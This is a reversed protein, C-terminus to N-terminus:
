KLVKILSTAVNASDQQVHSSDVIQITHRIETGTKSAELVIAGLLGFQTGIASDKPRTGEHCLFTIAGPSPVEFLIDGIYNACNPKVDLTMLPRNFAIDSYMPGRVFAVGSIEYKGPNLCYSFPKDVDLVLQITKDGDTFPELSLVISWTLQASQPLEGIICKGTSDILAIVQNRPYPEPPRDILGTRRPDFVVFKDDVSVITGYIPQNHWQLFLIPPLPGIWNGRGHVHGIIQTKCSTTNSVKTAQVACSSLTLSLAIM